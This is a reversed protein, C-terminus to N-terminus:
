KMKSLLYSLYLYTSVNEVYINLSKRGRTFLINLENLYVQIDSLSPAKNYPSYYMIRKKNFTIMETKKLCVFCHDIDFSLAHYTTGYFETAGAFVSFGDDNYKAREFLVGGISLHFPSESLPVYLKKIGSTNNYKEIFLNEDYFINIQYDNPLKCEKIKPDITTLFSLSKDTEESYRKATKLVRTTVKFGCENQFYLGLEKCSELTSNRPTFAQKNDGFLFTFKSKKIIDAMTQKSLRQCEDVISITEKDIMNFFDSSNFTTKGDKYMYQLNLAYYLKSNMLLIKTKPMEFFLRLALISKGTGANGYVLCVDNDAMKGTISEFIRNTEEYYRYNGSKIDNCVKVISALNSSQVLYEEVKENPKFTNLLEILNEITNITILKEGDYYYAKYLANNIFGAVVYSEKKLLQPLHNTIRNNIQREMKNNLDEINDCNKKKKDVFVPKEGNLVTVIDMETIETSYHFIFPHYNDTNEFCGLDLLSCFLSLLNKFEDRSFGIWSFSKFTDIGYFNPLDDYSSLLKQALIKNLKLGKINM